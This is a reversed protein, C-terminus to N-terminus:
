KMRLQRDEGQTRWVQVTGNSRGAALANGERSFSLSYIAVENSLSGLRSRTRPHWLRVEGDLGATALVARSSAPASVALSRIADKHAELKKLTRLRHDYFTLWGEYDAAVLTKRDPLFAVATVLGRHDLSSKLVRHAEVDVLTTVGSRNWDGGGAALIQDDASFALAWSPVDLSALLEPKRMNRVDWIDIPGLRGGVALRTQDHSFAIARVWDDHPLVLAARQNKLLSIPTSDDPPNPRLVVVGDTSRGDTSGYGGCALWDQEPSLTLCLWHLFKVKDVKPDELTLTTSTAVDGCRVAGGDSAYPREFRGSAMVLSQGDGQMAVSTLWDTTTASGAHMPAPHVRWLQITSAITGAGDASRSAQNPPPAGGGTPTSAVCCASSSAVVVSAPGDAVRQKTLVKGQLVDCMEWQGGDYALLLMQNDRFALDQVDSHVRIAPLSAPADGSVDWLQVLHTRGAAALLRADPSFAVSRGVLVALEQGSSTDWLRVSDTVDGSALMKGDPSIAVSRVAKAHKSFAKILEQTQVNWLGVVGAKHGSALLAGDRSFAVCHIASGADPFEFHSGDGPRWGRLSRGASVLLSGEQNLALSTISERFDTTEWVLTGDSANWVRVAGPGASALRAGDGSIALATAQGQHSFSHDADTDGGSRQCQGWLYHWAFDRQDTKGPGPLCRELLGRARDADREQWAIYALQVNSLYSQVENESASRWYLGAFGVVACTLLGLALAASRKKAWRAVKSLSGMPRAEIADGALYRGLEDAVERASQYRRGPSKEMCKLTITELDRAIRPNLKRLNPPEDHLVQYMLLRASGGFPRQGTLMQYLMVGLSYVDSRRDAQHADGRAQEPSMYAPTGLVQGEVTITAEGMERRALGFDTLHPEGADDMLINSPKLDRHVVGAEHAHHLADAIVAALEAAQRGTYTQCTLQDDLTSGRVLDSVIYVSEGERGVEHISVINPHRLQAAARAEQFFREQEEPTLVGQRPIKIAVTRDLETDRAKWVAGFGGVGLRELLEFRGLKSLPPTIRTTHPPDVLQFREGCGQCAIDTLSTDVAVQMSTHCSPCRVDLQGSPTDSSALPLTDAADSAEKSKEQSDFDQSEFAGRVVPRDDPFRVEYEARAPTQGQQQRYAVELAVLELLLRSRLPEAAHAVVDEIRPNEGACWKAEFRDCIEDLEEIFRSSSDDGPADTPPANM